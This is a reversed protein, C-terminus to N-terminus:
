GAKKMLFSLVSAPKKADQAAQRGSVARALQRLTESAAHKPAAQVIMQAANAAAGFLRADHAIVSEPPRGLAAAFEKMPIEPRKALGTGNLVLRAPRDHPREPALADLLAKTNRLSALDPTAVVVIEDAQVLVRKAWPTWLHPLDAVIMPANARAADLVTDVAEPALDWDRDLTAPAALLQLKAGLRVLLRELLVDDLRDPSSLADAIGQTPDQNFDLGATGFAIDLDVLLTAIGMEEATIWAVNHAITSAGTGGKAGVVAVLRGVPPSDPSAYLASMAEIAQVPSFPAVLYESVGQRLLERYLAVDNVPGCVVVKTGADCVQALAELEGLLDRGAAGSEVIVLNPTQSQAFHSAAEAITGMRVTMQAKSLRRDAAARQLALGTEPRVCFAEIAIRPLPRLGDYPSEIDETM